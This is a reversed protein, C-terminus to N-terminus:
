HDMFRRNIDHNDENFKTLCIYIRVLFYILISLITLEGFLSYYFMCTVFATAILRKLSLNLKDSKDRM